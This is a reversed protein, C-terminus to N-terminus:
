EKNNMAKLISEAVQRALRDYGPKSYHVNAPAQFFEPAFDKTLSYLDDIPIRHKEMVKAAAANYRVDDGVKRGSEGDPVLTTSAWILKAGTKELRNVIKELNKEYDEIPYRTKGNVKDRVSVGDQVSFHALDHLGWNFHIVDWKTTGLYSDLKDIGHATFMCNAPIGEKQMPRYVNAKSQLLERVKRTYGISISDGLIQVNPLAPDAEFNWTPDPQKGRNQQPKRTTQAEAVSLVSLFVITFFCTLKLTTNM